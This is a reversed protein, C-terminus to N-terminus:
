LDTYINKIIQLDDDIYDDPTELIIPIELYKCFKIIENIILDIFSENHLNELDQPLNNSKANDCDVQKNDHDIYCTVYEDSVGEDDGRPINETEWVIMRLELETRPPPTIDWTKVDRRNEFIEM